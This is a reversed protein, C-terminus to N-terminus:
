GDAFLQIIRIAFAPTRSYDPSFLGPQITRASYDPSFLEPESHATQTELEIRFLLCASQLWKLIIAMKYTYKDKPEFSMKFIVHLSHNYRGWKLFDGFVHFRCIKASCFREVM